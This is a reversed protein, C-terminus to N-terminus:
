LKANVFAMPDVNVNRYLVEYHLHPGTSRGTSGVEGIAQNKEVKDGKKVYNKNLHAYKTVFGNGHNIEVVNGYGRMFESRVVKGAAMTSVKNGKRSALDVGKHIASKKNMPDSRHGFPSSLWYSWVPKGLPLSEAIKRYYELDEYDEYVKSIKENLREDNLFENDPVYLGGKGGSKKNSLANFYLSKKKLAGNVTSISSKIKTIEKEAVQSVRDLLEDEINKLEDITEELADVKLKLLDRESVAIDRQLLAESATTKESMTEDNLWEREDTIQKIKDEVVLAQQKYNNIEDINDIKEEEMSSIMAGINKHITIFDSMLDAYADRTQDLERSQYSIISGSKDYVHYSYGSWAALMAVAALFGIQLRPSINFVKARGRSRFIIEKNSFLPQKERYAVDKPVTIKMGHRKM